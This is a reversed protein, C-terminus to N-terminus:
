TLEQQLHGALRLALAVITLTPNAYGGTPFVAGGAVFLNEVGHVRCDSDVVGRRPEDSMRLTGLHHAGGVAPGFLDREPPDVRVVGLGLGGIESSLLAIASNASRSDLETLRWDLETRRLGLEDLEAGLRIRSDRNPMQECRLFLTSVTTGTTAEAARLDSVLPAVDAALDDLSDFGDFPMPGPPHLTASFGLLGRERRAQATLAVGGWVVLEHGPRLEDAALRVARLSFLSVNDAPRTLVVPGATVHPHEMFYRGVLGNDNGLGDPRADTSSLLLRANELAGAALVVLRSRARFRRGTLTAVDLSTVRTGDSTTAINVVNAHLCVTVRPAAVLEERYAIGFRTPPSWQWIVTEFPSESPFPLAEGLDARARWWAVDYEPPGLELVDHALAYWPDLEHIGIPWGTEPVNRRSEFDIPDLPRCMGGWHGTTGGFARIRTMALPRYGHGVVDGETLRDTDPATEFGGSEFLLVSRSTTSLARAISIGAAGAGVVCVDAELLGGEEVTRADILV